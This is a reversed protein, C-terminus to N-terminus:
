SVPDHALLTSLGPKLSEGLNVTKIVGAILQIRQLKHGPVIVFLSSLNFGSDVVANRDSCGYSLICQVPIDCALFIRNVM